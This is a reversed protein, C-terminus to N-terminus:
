IVSQWGSRLFNAHAIKKLRWGGHVETNGPELCVKGVGFLVAGLFISSGIWEM